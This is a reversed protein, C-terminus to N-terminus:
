INKKMAKYLELVKTKLSQPSLVIAEDGFMMYWRAFGELSATLFTMEVFDKIPRESIYGMYYKQEGLYRLYEKKMKIVVKHLEREDHTVQKLYSQLSPHTKQYSVSTMKLRKIRDIRFNRYDKRLLCYAVLHWTGTNFFIGVPEVSRASLKQNHNAFYEMEMATKNRLSKLIDQLYQNDDHRKPLYKNEVVTISDEIESLSEKEASKLIAKIKYLASAYNQKTFKDTLKEVLKEATLFALAEEETFMVPPLRFGNALSYGVGAESIIPVGAEVLTHIDRYVTRLSIHFRDAVDQAKVIKKSQLHILIASVRDIRNM